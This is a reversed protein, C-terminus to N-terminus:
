SFSLTSKEIETIRESKPKQWAEFWFGHRLTVKNVLKGIVGSWNGSHPDLNGYKSNEEIVFQFGVDKSLEDLLDVLFGEFRSEGNESDLRMMYPINDTQFRLWDQM